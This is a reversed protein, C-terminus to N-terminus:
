AAMRQYIEVTQGPMVEFQGVVKIAKGNKIMPAKTKPYKKDQALTFTAYKSSKPNPLCATVAHWDVYTGIGGINAQIDSIMSRLSSLGVTINTMQMGEWIAECIMGAAQVDLLNLFSASYHSYLMDKNFMPGNNHALTYATDIFIEASSEGGFYDGLAEAIKGWPKGGFQNGFTGVNFANQLLRCYKELSEEPVLPLWTNLTVENHSDMIQSHFATFKPNKANLLTGPNKLHRFERTIVLFTYWVMSQHQKVLEQEYEAAIVQAWVPLPEHPTFVLTLRAMMQNLAYFRIAESDPHLKTSNKNVGRLVTALQPASVSLNRKLRLPSGLVRALTTKTEYQM